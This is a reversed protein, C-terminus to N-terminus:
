RESRNPKKTRENMCSAQQHTLSRSARLAPLACLAHDEDDSPARERAVHSVGRRAVVFARVVFARRALKSRPPNLRRLGTPPVIFM